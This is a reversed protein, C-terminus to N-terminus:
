CGGLRMDIASRPADFAVADVHDSADAAALRDGGVATERGAHDDATAAGVATEAGPRTRFGTAPLTM